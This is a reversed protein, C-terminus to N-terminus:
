QCVGNEVFNSSVSSTTTQTGEIKTPLTKLTRPIPRSMRNKDAFEDLGKSAEPTVNPYKKLLDKGMVHWERLKAVSRELEKEAGIATHKTKAM